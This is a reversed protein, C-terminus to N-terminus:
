PGFNQTWYRKWESSGNEAFGAGFWHFREDMINYCHMSGMWGEVVEAATRYNGAINEGTFVGNYGHARSRPGPGVGEPSKHDFYNRTAMDLSHARAASVLSAHLALPPAPPFTKGTAVCVAGRARRANTEAFV